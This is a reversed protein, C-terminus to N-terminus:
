VVDMREVRYERGSVYEFERANCQPCLIEQAERLNVTVEQSCHKCRVVMPVREIILKAGQAITGKSLYDFYRQVWEEQLDSAEGVRLTVTIVKRAAHVNAHKICLDLVSQIVPLEHL